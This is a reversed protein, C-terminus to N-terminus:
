CNSAAATIKRNIVPVAIQDPGIYFIHRSQQEPEAQWQMQHQIQDFYQVKRAMTLKLHNLSGFQIGDTLQWMKPFFSLLNLCVTPGTNGGDPTQQIFIQGSLSNLSLDRQIQQTEQDVIKPHKELCTLYNVYADDYSKLKNYVVASDVFAQNSYQSTDRIILPTDMITRYSKYQFPEM